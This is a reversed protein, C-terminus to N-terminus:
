KSITKIRCELGHEQHKAEYWQGDTDERTLRRGFAYVSNIDTVKRLSNQNINDM